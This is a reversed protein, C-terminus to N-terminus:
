FSGIRDGVLGLDIGVSGFQIMGVLGKTIMSPMLSSILTLLVFLMMIQEVWWCIRMEHSSAAQRLDHSDVRCLLFWLAPVVAEYDASLLLGIFIMMM